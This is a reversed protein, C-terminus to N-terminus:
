KWMAHKAYLRNVQAESIVVDEGSTSTTAAAGQPPACEKIVSGLDDSIVLIAFRLVENVKNGSAQSYM